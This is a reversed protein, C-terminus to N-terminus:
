LEPTGIMGTRADVFALWYGYGGQRKEDEKAPRWNYFGCMGMSKEIQMDYVGPIGYVYYKVRNNNDYMIGFLYNYTNIRWWTCDRVPQDFPEVKPYCKLMDEMYEELGYNVWADYGYRNKYIENYKEGSEREESKEIEFAAKDEATETKSLEVEKESVKDTKVGGTKRGESKEEFDEEDKEGSDVEKVTGEITGVQGDPAATGQQVCRDVGTQTREDVEVGKKDELGAGEDELEADEVDEPREDFYQRQIIDKWRGPFRGTSGALPCIFNRNEEGAKQVLVGFLNFKDIGFGTGEVNHPNFKWVREGKGKEDIVITGTDLIVPQEDIKAIFGKYIYDGEEFYKLNQVFSTLVGKGSKVEIRVYGAPKRGIDINYGGDQENLIISQRRYNRGSKVVGEERM